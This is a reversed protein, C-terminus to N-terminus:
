FYLQCGSMDGKEVFFLLLILHKSPNDNGIHLSNSVMDSVQKLSLVQQVDLPKNRLGHSLVSELNSCLNMVCTDYETALETRGGFRKQCDQVSQLLQSLLKQSESTATDAVASM